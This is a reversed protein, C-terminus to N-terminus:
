ASLNRLKDAIDFNTAATYGVCRPCVCDNTLACTVASRVYIKKGILHKDDRANLLELDKDDPTMKYFKGNLKKLHKATKIDYPVLHRTGCDSVTTSMKLTRALEM